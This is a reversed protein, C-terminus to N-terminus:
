DKGKNSEVFKNFIIELEDSDLRCIYQNSGEKIIKRICIDKVNTMNSLLVYEINNYNLKNVINYEEKNELIITNIQEM